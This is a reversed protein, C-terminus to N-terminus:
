HLSTAFAEAYIKIYTTYVRSFYNIKIVHVLREASTHQLSPSIVQRSSDLVV